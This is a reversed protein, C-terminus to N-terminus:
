NRHSFEFKSESARESSESIEPIWSPGDSNNKKNQIDVTKLLAKLFGAKELTRWTSGPFIIAHFRFDVTTFLNVHLRM